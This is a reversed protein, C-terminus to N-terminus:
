CQCTEPLVMMWSVWNKKNPKEGNKLIYVEVGGLTGMKTSPVTIVRKGNKKANRKMAEFSCCNCMTM